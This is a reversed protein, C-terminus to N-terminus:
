ILKIGSILVITLITYRLILTPVKTSLISGLIVGPISGSLLQLVISYNVHGFSAHTIGAAAALFLAHTIDTGVVEKGSLDYFYMIALAFLSGSGISTLGVVFGLLAGIGITINRKSRIDLQQWRNSHPGKSDKANKLITAIPIFILAVGLARKIVMDAGGYSNEIWQLLNVALISSPVSGLAFYLAIKIHTTKQRWHQIVGFIKTVANYVLDTGVSVTPPIGIMILIPTLIAAGGVGTLGVLLGVFVGIFTLSIDL